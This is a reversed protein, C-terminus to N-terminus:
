LENYVVEQKITEKVIRFGPTTNNKENAAKLEELRKRAEELSSYLGETWIRCNWEFQAIYIESEKLIEGM